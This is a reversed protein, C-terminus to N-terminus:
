IAVEVVKAGRPQDSKHKDDEAAMWLRIAEKINAVAEDDTHGQSICGPLSPCEAIIWGDEGQELIIRVKM